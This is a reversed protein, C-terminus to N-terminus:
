YMDQNVVILSDPFLLEDDEPALQRQQADRVLAYYCDMTALFPDNSPAALALELEVRTQARSMRQTYFLEAREREGPWWSAM